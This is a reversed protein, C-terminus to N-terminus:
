RSKKNEHKTKVLWVSCIKWGIYFAGIVPVKSHFAFRFAMEVNISTFIFQLCFFSICQIHLLFDHAFSSNYLQKRSFLRSIKFNLLYFNNINCKNMSSKQKRNRECNRLSPIQIIKKREQKVFETKIQEYLSLFHAIVNCKLLDTVVSIASLLM